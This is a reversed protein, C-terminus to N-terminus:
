LELAPPGPQFLAWAKAILSVCVKLGVKNSVVVRPNVRPTQCM